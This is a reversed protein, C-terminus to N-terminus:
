SFAGGWVPCTRPRRGRRPEQGPDLPIMISSSGSMSANYTSERTYIWQEAGPRPVPDDEVMAAADLLVDRASGVKGAGGVLSVPARDHGDGGVLLTTTVAAVTIAVVAGAAATRWDSRLGRVETAARGRRTSCGNGARHWGPATPFRHM